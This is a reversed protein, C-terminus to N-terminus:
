IDVPDKYGTLEVYARGRIASGNVTGGVTASGEWYTDSSTQLEQKELTPLISVDLKLSPVTIQWGMPYTAGSQTSRWSALRKITFDKSGLHEVAGNVRVFTGASQPDITGDFNRLSYLMLETGDDLQVAFWDWGVEQESLEDTGFEHDMWALGKVRFTKEGVALTGDVKMRTLSYYHSACGTCSAKQSVGDKGHIVPEKLPTLVVDLAYALYDAKLHHQNSASRAFWTGNWVHYDKKDEGGELLGALDVQEHYSFRKGSEDTIAFHAAHLDKVQFAAITADDDVARRFFALEFGFKRGDEASLHGNYYWWETKYNKHAAHDRPFSFKYGPLARQFDRASASAAFAALLILSILCHWWSRYQVGIDGQRM